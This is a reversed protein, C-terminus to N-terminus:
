PGLSRITPTEGCAIFCFEGSWGRLQLRVWCGLWVPGTPSSSKEGCALGFALVAAFTLIALLLGTTLASVFIHTRLKLRRQTTDASLWLLLAEGLMVAVACFWPVLSTYAQKFDAAGPFSSSALFMMAPVLFALVLVGCFLTILLGWKKM